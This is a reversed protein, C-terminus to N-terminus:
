KSPPAALWISGEDRDNFNLNTTTANLVCPGVHITAPGGAAPDLRLGSTLTIPVRQSKPITPALGIEGEAIPQVPNGGGAIQVCITFGYKTNDTLAAESSGVVATASLFARQGPQLTIEPMTGLLFFETASHNITGM